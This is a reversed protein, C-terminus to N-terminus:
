KAQSGSQTAAEAQARVRPLLRKAARHNRDQELCRRLEGVAAEFRGAERLAQARAFRWEIRDPEQQLARRYYDAAAAHEGREAKLRALRILTTTAVDEAAAEAELREIIRQRIQEETAEAVPEDAGEEGELAALYRRAREFDPRFRLALRLEYRAADHEGLQVLQRALHYHWGPRNRGEALARRYLKAAAQHEGAEAKFAALQALEMPSVAQREVRQELQEAALQRAKAALTAEGMRELEEASGLLRRWNGRALEIALDPRDYLELLFRRIERFLTPRVVVARKFRSEAEDWRGQDAALLGAFFAVRGKYPALRYAREILEGGDNTQGLLWRIRGELGYLPAYTPCAARADRLRQAIRRALDAREGSIGGPRYVTDGEAAIRGLLGRWRYRNLRYRARAYGPAALSAREAAMIRQAHEAVSGPPNEEIREGIAEARKLHWEAVADSWGQWGLPVGIGIVLLLVCWRGIGRAATPASPAPEAEADGERSFGRIAFLLGLLSSAALANAPLRQGFDAASHIFIAGVALALGYEAGTVSGGGRRAIDLLAKAVFGLFLLVLLTGALGTEALLAPYNADAHKVRLPTELTQYLPYVFELAGEGFGVWPYEKFARFLDSAQTLRLQFNHEQELAMLTSMRDLVLEFGLLLLLCFAALALVALTSAASDGRRRVALVVLMVAGSTCMGITAGRSLSLAICVAILPVAVGLLLLPLRDASLLTQGPEPYRSSRDEDEGILKVMLLAVAAGLSLNMFQAFHNHNVFTGNLHSESEFFWYIRDNGFVRQALFLLGSAVGLSAIVALLRKIQDPTRFVNIVVVFVTAVVLLLRLDHWTGHPYLSLTLMGPAEDLAQRWLEASRPSIAEVLGAPLPIAQTLVLLLFLAVPLYAWTWVFRTGRCLALKLTFIAAILGGLVFVVFESWAQVGGFAVLAFAILTVLLFEIAHDFLRARRHQDPTNHMAPSSTDRLDHRAMEYGKAGREAAPAM